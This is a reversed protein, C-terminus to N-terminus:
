WICVYSYNNHYLVTKMRYIRVPKYKAVKEFHDPDCVVAIRRAHKAYRMVTEMDPEYHQNDYLVLDVNHNDYIKWDLGIFDTFGNQAAMQFRLDPVTYYKLGLIACAFARSGMGPIMDYVSGTIGLTKILAAYTSATQYKFRGFERFKTFTCAIKAIARVVNSTTIPLNPKKIVLNVLSLITRPRHMVNAFEGPGFYHETIQRGPIKILKHPYFTFIGNKVFKALSTYKLADLDNALVDRPHPLTTLKGAKQLGKLAYVFNQIAVRQEIFTAASFEKRDLMIHAAYPNESLIDEPEYVQQVKPVNECEASRRNIYFRGSVKRGICNYVHSKNYYYAEKLGTRYVVFIHTRYSIADRVVEQQKLFHVIKRKWIAPQHHNVTEKKTRIQIEFRVLWDAFARRSIGALKACESLSMHNDVYHKTCWEKTCCKNKPLLAERHTKARLKHRAIYDRFTKQPVGLWNALPRRNHIRLMQQVWEPDDRWDARPVGSITPKPLIPPPPRRTSKKPIGALTKWKYVTQQSVGAIIAHDSNKLYPKGDFWARLSKPDSRRVKAFEARLQSLDRADM